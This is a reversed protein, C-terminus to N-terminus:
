VARSAIYWPKDTSSRSDLHRRRVHKVGYNSVGGTRVEGEAIADEVARWCELRKSNGGYPSHLLFLDIYQLGSVQVSQKIAQRAAEYSTNSALKTTYWVDKRTLGSQNRSSDLFSLIARGTERENHYMQACDFGRYGAELAATVADSTERGSMLYLGLHIQPMSLGNSLKTVASLASM